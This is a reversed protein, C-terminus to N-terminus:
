ISPEVLIDGLSIASFYSLLFNIYTGLPNGVASPITKSVSIIFDM